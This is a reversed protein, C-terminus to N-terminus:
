LKSLFVDVAQDLEDNEDNSAMPDLEVQKKGSSRFLTKFDVESETESETKDPDSEVFAIPPSKKCSLHNSPSSLNDIVATSHSHLNGQHPSPSSSLDIVSPSLDVLPVRKSTGPKASAPQPMVSLTLLDNFPVHKLTGLKTSAPPSTVFSTLDILPVRKPTGPKTSALPLKITKM